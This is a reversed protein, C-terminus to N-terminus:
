PAPEERRRREVADDLLAKVEPLGLRGLEEEVAEATPGETLTPTELHGVIGVGTQAWRPFVLFGKYPARLNGTRETEPSVTYPHGDLGEFAPPRDHLRFYGGLTADENVTENPNPM